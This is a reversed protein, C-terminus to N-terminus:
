QSTPQDASPRKKVTPTSRSRAVPTGLLVRTTGSASGEDMGSSGAAPTCAIKSYAAKAFCGPTRASWCPPTDIPDSGVVYRNVFASNWVLKNWIGSRRYDARRPHEEDCLARPKREVPAVHAPRRSAVPRIGEEAERTRGVLFENRWVSRLRMRM